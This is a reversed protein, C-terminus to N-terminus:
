SRSHQDALQDSRRADKSVAATQPAAMRCRSSWHRRCSKASDRGRSRVRPTADIRSCRNLCHKQPSTRSPGPEAARGNNTDSSRSATRAHGHREEVCRAVRARPAGARWDASRVGGRPLTQRELPTSRPGLRLSCSVCALAHAGGREHGRLRQGRRPLDDLGAARAARARRPRDAVQEDRRASGRCQDHTRPGAPRRRARRHRRLAASGAGHPRHRARGHGAATRREREADAAHGAQLSGQAVLQPQAQLAAETDLALVRNVGAPTTLGLLLDGRGDGDLDAGGSVVRGVERHNPSRADLLLRGHPGGFILVRGSTGFGPEGVAVDPFGNGDLDGLAAVDHGFDGNAETGFRKLLQHGDLGSRIEFVGAEYLTIGLPTHQAKAAFDGFAFDDHGDGDFDGVGEIERTLHESNQTGQLQLLVAGTAGSWVFVEGAATVGAVTTGPAAAAFDPVGDADVDGVGAVTEGLHASSASGPVHHLVSGDAGSYVRVAGAFSGDGPSGVVLDDFGDANVDGVGDLCYGFRSNSVPGDLELLLSGDAGSWVDVRGKGNFGGPHQPAGAAYDHVGDGDMDGADTVSWGLWGGSSGLHEQLLSGDAGSHVRVRGANDSYSGPAGIVSDAIGDGDLDPLVDIDQAGVFVPPQAMGVEHIPAASLGFGLPHIGAAPVFSLNEFM